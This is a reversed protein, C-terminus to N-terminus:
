LRSLFAQGVQLLNADNGQYFLVWPADAVVPRRVLGNLRIGPAVTIRRSAWGPQAALAQYRAASIQGSLYPFRLRKPGFVRAFAAVSLAVVAAFGLSLWGKRSLRFM